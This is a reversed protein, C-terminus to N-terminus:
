QERAVLFAHRQVTYALDHLMELLGALADIRTDNALRGGLRLQSIENAHSTAPRERTRQGHM